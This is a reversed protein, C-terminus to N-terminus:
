IASPVRTLGSMRLLVAAGLAAIGCVAILTDASIGWDFLVGFLMPSLATSVVGVAATAARISGLREVGYAEALLSTTVTASSGNTLGNLAMYVLLAPQADFTALVLVGLTMPLMFFLSVRRGGIRDVLWGSGLAAALAAAGSVAFAAAFYAPPWGKSQAILVQHFSIATSIFGGAMFAPLALLVDKQLLFRLAGFPARAIAVDRGQRGLLIPALPLLILLCIASAVAWGGRWGLYALALAGLAPFVSEGAPLGM